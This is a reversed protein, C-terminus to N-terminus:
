GRRRHLWRRIQEPIAVLAAVIVAILILLAGGIVETVATGGTEGRVANVILLAALFATIVALIFGTARATTSPLPMPGPSPAPRTRSGSPAHPATASTTGSRARERQRRKRRKADPM